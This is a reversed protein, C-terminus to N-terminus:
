RLSFGAAVMLVYTTVCDTVIGNVQFCQKNIINRLHAYTCYQLNIFFIISIKLARESSFLSRIKLRTRKDLWSINAPSIEFARLFGWYVMERWIPIRILLPNILMLSLLNFSISPPLLNIVSLLAGVVKKISGPLGNLPLLIKIM